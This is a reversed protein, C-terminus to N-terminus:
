GQLSTICTRLNSFSTIGMCQLRFLCTKTNAMQAEEMSSAIAAVEACTEAASGFIRTRIVSPALLWSQRRVVRQM